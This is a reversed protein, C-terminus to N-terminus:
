SVFDNKLLEQLEGLLITKYGKMEERKSKSIDRKLRYEYLQLGRKLVIFQNSNINLEKM